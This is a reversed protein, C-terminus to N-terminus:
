GPFGPKYVLLCHKGLDAKKVYTYEYITKLNHLSRSFHEISISMYYLFNLSQDPAACFTRRGILAQDKQEEM